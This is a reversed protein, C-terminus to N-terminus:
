PGTRNRTMELYLWSRAYTCYRRVTAVSLGQSQAIESFTLGVFYHLKVIEAKQPSELAFKELADNVAQVTEDADETALHVQSLDVRQLEGGHRVRSKQRARDVLIRRMAEAAAGFFHGRHNWAASDDSGVLRLWAEHVLATAQLTQGPKEQALKASALKRLEEYVLPLLEESAQREGAQIAFLLQTVDSMSTLTLTSNAM